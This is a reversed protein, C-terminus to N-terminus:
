SSRKLACWGRMAWCKDDIEKEFRVKSRAANELCGDGDQVTEKEIKETLPAAKKQQCVKKVTNKEPIKRNLPINAKQNRGRGKEKELIFNKVALHAVLKFVNAM